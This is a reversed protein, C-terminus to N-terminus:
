KAIIYFLFSPKQSNCYGKIPRTLFSMQLAQKKWRPVRYKNLVEKVKQLSM